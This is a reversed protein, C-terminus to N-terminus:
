FNLILLLSNLQHKLTRRLREQGKRVPEQNKRRGPTQKERNSRQVLEAAARGQVVERKCDELDHM